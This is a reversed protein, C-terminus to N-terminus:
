DETPSIEKQDLYYAIEDDLIELPVAEGEYLIRDEYHLVKSFVEKQLQESFSGGLERMEEFRKQYEDLLAQGRETEKKLEAAKERGLTVRTERRVNELELREEENLAADVESRQLLAGLSREGFEKMLRSVHTKTEPRLVSSVTEWEAKPNEAIFREIAYRTPWVDLALLRACDALETTSVADKDASVAHAVREAEQRAKASALPVYGLLFDLIRNTSRLDLSADAM